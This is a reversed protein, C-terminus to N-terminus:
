EFANVHGVAPHTFFLSVNVFATAVCMHCRDLLLLLQVLALM